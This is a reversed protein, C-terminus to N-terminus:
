ADGVSSAWRAWPLAREALLVVSYLAGGVAATAAIGAVMQDAYSYYSASKIFFGVGKSSGIFEAVVAGIVAFVASVRLSAFTWGVASPLRLRWLVQWRTAGLTDFIDYMTPSVARLGRISNVLVPFFAVTAAMIVKSMAGTGFWNVLLPALAILPVMKLVIVLPYLADSLPPVMTFLVAGLLGLAVALAFGGAAELFTTWSHDLLLGANAVLANFAKGPTPLVVPSVQFAVVGIHWAAIVLLVAGLPLAVRM